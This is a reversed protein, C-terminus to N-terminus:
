CDMSVGVQEIRFQRDANGVVHGEYGMVGRVNLGAGRAAEALPGAEDPSIGCRPLGVNVDILVEVPGFRRAEVVVALTEPSDIAVTLRSDHSGALGVARGLAAVNVTENALLVDTGLGADILGEVERLTAACFTDSGSRRSLYSALETCKHAKIHSRLSRGPRAASMADINHDLTALDIVAAPTALDAVVLTM